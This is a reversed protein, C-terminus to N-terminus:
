RLRWWAASRRGRTSSAWRPRDSTSRSGDAVAAHGGSVRRGGGHRAAPPQRGAHRDRDGTRPQRLGAVLVAHDAPVRSAHRARGDAQRRGRVDGRVRGPIGVPAALVARQQHSHGRAIAKIAVPLTQRDLYSIAIAASVLLAFRWRLMTLRRCLAHDPHALVMFASHYGSAPALAVSRCRTVWWALVDM